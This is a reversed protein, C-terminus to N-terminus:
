EHEHTEELEVPLVQYAGYGLNLLQDAVPSLHQVCGHKLQAHAAAKVLKQHTSVRLKLRVEILQETM